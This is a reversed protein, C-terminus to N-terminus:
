VEHPEPIRLGLETSAWIVIKSVYEMFGVTTLKTTSVTTPLEKGNVMIWTKLFMEKCLEHIEDATYGLEESIMYYCVGWLYRNQQNSRVDNWKTISVNVRGDLSRIYNKIPDTMLLEGNVVTTQFKPALKM